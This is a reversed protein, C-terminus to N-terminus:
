EIIKKSDADFKIIFADSYGLDKIKVLYNKADNKNSFRGSIYKYYGEDFYYDIDELIEPISDAPLKNWVMKFQISYFPYETEINQKSHAFIIATEDFPINYGFRFPLESTNAKNFDNKLDQQWYKEFINLTHGYKGFLEIKFGSKKLYEYSFGSDDQLIKTAQSQLINKFFGLFDEHLLYSASKLLINKQGFNTIFTTFEPNEYFNQNSLDFQLYYLKKYGYEGFFSIEVGKVKKELPSFNSTYSPKGFDDLIFYKLDYVTNGTRNIFFLLPHIVGNMDASRFSYKMTQTSFYGELFFSTMSSSLANIYQEIELDTYETFDPVFGINELGVLIYNNAYPFFGHLFAYDPGSFPYFVTTTDNKSTINNNKAWQQIVMLQNLYFYNWTTSIAKEYNKYFNKNQINEFTDCYIGSILNSYENILEIKPIDSVTDFITINTNKENNNNCSSILFLSILILFFFYNRM